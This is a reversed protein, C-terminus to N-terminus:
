PASAEVEQVHLTLNTFRQFDSEKCSAHCICCCGAIAGNGGRLISAYAPHSMLDSWLVWRRRFCLLPRGVELFARGCSFVVAVAHHSLGDWHHLYLCMCMCVRAPLWSTHLLPASCPPTPTPPPHQGTWLRSWHAPCGLPDSPWCGSWSGQSPPIWPPSSRPSTKGWSLLLASPRAGIGPGNSSRFVV